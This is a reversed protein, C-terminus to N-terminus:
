NIVQSLKAVASGFKRHAIYSKALCILLKFWIKSLKKKKVEGSLNDKPVNNTPIQLMPLYLCNLNM